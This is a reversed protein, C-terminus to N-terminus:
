ISMVFHTNSSNWMEILLCVSLRSNRARPNRLSDARGRCWAWSASARAANLFVEGLAEVLDGLAVCRALRYLDPKLVVGPDALLVLDGPSPCPAPRPGRGWVILPCARGVDEAGDARCSSGPGTKDQRAAIGSRHSQMQGLDGLRHRRSRMSNQQEILGAPVERGLEVDGVVDGQHRQRRLRGFEVRDFVDPLEHAVVPEGVADEAGVVVDECVAAEGPVLEDVLWPGDHRDAQAIPRM